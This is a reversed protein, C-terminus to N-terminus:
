LCIVTTESDCHFVRYIENEQVNKSSLKLKQKSLKNTTGNGKKDFVISSYEVQKECCLRM